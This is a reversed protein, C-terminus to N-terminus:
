TRLSTNFIHFLKGLAYIKGVFMITGSNNNYCYYSFYGVSALHIENQWIHFLSWDMTFAYCKIKEPLSKRIVTCFFTQYIKKSFYYSDYKICTLNNNKCNLKSTMKDFLTRGSTATFLHISRFIEM